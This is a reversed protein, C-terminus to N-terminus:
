QPSIKSAFQYLVEAQGKANMKWAEHLWVSDAKGANDIMVRKGWVAAWSENKGTAINTGTFSIVGNVSSVISKFNSRYRKGSATISDRSGKVYFGDWAHVEASDAWLSGQKTLDGDDWFKWLNLAVETNKQDDAKFDKFNVPYPYNLQVTNATEGSVPTTEKTQENNCALLSLMCAVIFVKKM